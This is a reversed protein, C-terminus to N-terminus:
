YVSRIRHTERLAKWIPHIIDKSTEDDMGLGDKLYFDFAYQLLPVKDEELSAIAAKENIPMEAIIEQVTQDIDSSHSM